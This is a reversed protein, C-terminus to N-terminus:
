QFVYRISLAGCLLCVGSAGTFNIEPKFDLALNLPIPQFTYEAGIMGDIGVTTQTRDLGSETDTYESFGVHAGGGYFWNFERHWGIDRHKLGLATLEYGRRRSTFHGELALDRNLFYKGSLGFGSGARLGFAGQYDSQAFLSATSFLLAAAVLLHKM